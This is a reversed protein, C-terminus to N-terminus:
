TCRWTNGKCYFLEWLSDPSRESASGIVGGRVPDESALGGLAVCPTLSWLIELIKIGGVWGKRM